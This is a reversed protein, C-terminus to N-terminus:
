NRLLFVQLNSKRGSTHIFTVVSHIGNEGKTRLVPYLRPHQRSLHQLSQLSYVLPQLLMIVGITIIIYEM